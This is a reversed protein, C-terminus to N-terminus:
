VFHCMFLFHVTDIFLLMNPLGLCRTPYRATVLWYFWLSICPRNTVHCQCLYHTFNSDVEVGCANCAYWDYGCRQHCTFSGLLYNIQFENQWENMVVSHIYLTHVSILSVGSRLRRVTRIFLFSFTQAVFFSCM